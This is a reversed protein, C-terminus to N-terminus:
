ACRPNHSMCPQPQCVTPPSEAQVPLSKAVKSNSDHDSSQRAPAKREISATAFAAGKDRSFAIPGLAALLIAALALKTLVLFALWELRQTKHDYDPLRETAPRHTNTTMVPISHASHPLSM